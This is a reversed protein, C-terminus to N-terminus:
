GQHKQVPGPDVCPGTAAGVPVLLQEASTRRAGWGAAQCRLNGSRGCTKLSDRGQTQVSVVCLCRSQRSASAMARQAGSFSGSTRGLVASLQWAEGSLWRAPQFM